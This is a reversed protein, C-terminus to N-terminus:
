KKDKKLFVVSKIIAELEFMIDRKQKSPAYVFGELVLIRNNKKDVIVYNLFPGSMFDNSLEWNGRTEFATKGYIETTSFFPLYGRETTMRSRSVAGHIYRFGISDRIKLVRDVTYDQKTFSKSPLQYAVLSVSGSTIERKYWIFNRNKLMVRFKSPINLTIHFKKSLPKVDAIEQNALQKQYLKLESQKIKQIIQNSNCDISDLLEQVTNGSFRAVFQPNKVQSEEISFNSKAEKKVVIINKSNTMFGELLKVPYQNISFLPEEQSLGPVPSAFKNRITDGIEGNWLEDDIIISVTNLKALPESNQKKNKDFCSTCFVIGFVFVLVVKNM